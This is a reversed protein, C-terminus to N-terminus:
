PDRQPPVLHRARNKRVGHPGHKLKDVRGDSIEPTACPFLEDETAKKKAAAKEAELQEATKKPAPPDVDAVDKTSRQTTAGRGRTTTKDVTTRKIKEPPIAQEPRDALVENTLLRARMEADEIFQPPGVTVVDVDDSRVWFMRGSRPDAGIRRGIVRGVYIRDDTETVYVGCIAQGDSTRVLALPQVRPDILTRGINLAAGFVILSLMAGAGYWAFRRTSRALGFNALALLLVVVVMVVLLREEEEGFWALGICGAVLITIAWFTVSPTSVRPGAPAAELADALIAESPPRIRLRRDKDSSEGRTPDKPEFRLDLAKANRRLAEDENPAAKEWEAIARFWDRRARRLHLRAQRYTVLLGRLFEQSPPIAPESGNGPEDPDEYDPDVQSLADDYRDQASRFREWAERLAADAAKRDDRERLRKPVDAVAYYAIGGVVVFALGAAIAWGVPLDVVLLTALLELGALVVLGRLTGLTANGGSDLVYLLLVAFLGLLLYVVLSAAGVTVLEAEPIVRVAQDAPLGAAWFRVWEIAGGVLTVFGVVGIAGAIAPLAQWALEGLRALAGKPPEPQTAAPEAM